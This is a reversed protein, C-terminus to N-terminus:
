ETSIEPKEGKGALIRNLRRVMDRWSIQNGPNMNVVNIGRAFPRKVLYETDGERITGRLTFVDNKLRCYIGLRSYPFSKFFSTLGSRLMAASDGSGLILLNEVARAEFIRKTRRKKVSEVLLEFREPQGYSFFLGDIRGEVIGTVRGFPISRTVQELDIDVLRIDAGIRRSTSLIHSGTLGDLVITGGFVHAELGGASILSGREITIDYFEGALTGPFQYPLYAASLEALDLDDMGLALSIVMEPGGVGRIQFRPVRLMGNFLPISLDEALELGNTLPALQVTLDNVSVSGYGLSQIHIYAAEATFTHPQGLSSAGPMNITIPINGKLGRLTVGNNPLMIHTDRINLRGTSRWESPRGVLDMELSTSGEVTADHLVPFETQYPEKVFLEFFEHNDVGQASCHLSFIPDEFVHDVAGECLFSGVTDLAVSGERLTV